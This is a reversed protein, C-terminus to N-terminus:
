EPRLSQIQTCWCHPAAPVFRRPASLCSRTRWRGEQRSEAVLQPLGPRSLKRPQIVVSGLFARSTPLFSGTGVGSLQGILLAPPRLPLEEGAMKRAPAERRVAGPQPLGLQQAERAKRADTGSGRYLQLLGPRLCPSGHSHRPQALRGQDPAAPNRHRAQAGSLATGPASPRSCM